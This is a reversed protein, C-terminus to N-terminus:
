GATVGGDVPVIAGHVHAADDSCLWAIVSAVEGATAMGRLPSYRQVLKWDLGEPFQLAANMPTDIGGPAVANFRIGQKVYEMALSRTLQIVGGKTAAYAATYAQGRLGAVSAVNVVSGRSTLLHPIAAQTTFVVGSLNIGVLLHWDQEPMEAFHHFRNVGAVNVLVDLGAVAAAEVAGFCGARSSLDFCGTRMERGSEAVLRATEALGTENVDAGFVSAGQDALRLAVARGLGSAAGTVLATKDTFRDGM